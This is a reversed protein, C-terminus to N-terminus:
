LPRAREGFVERALEGVAARVAEDSTRGLRFGLQALRSADLRSRPVDGRWGREGGTYRICAGPYPSAAVCLEAIRSVSTTDAPAINFVGLADRAHDVGFLMADVCDTV